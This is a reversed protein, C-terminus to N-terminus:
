IFLYVGYMYLFINEIGATINFKGDGQVKVVMINGSTKHTGLIELRPIISRSKLTKADMNLSHCM